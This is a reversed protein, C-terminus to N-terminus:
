PNTRTALGQGLGDADSSLLPPRAAGSCFPGVHSIEADDASVRGRLTPERGEARSKQCV